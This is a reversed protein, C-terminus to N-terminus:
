EWESLSVGMREIAATLTLTPIAPIALCAIEPGNRTRHRQKDGAKPDAEYNVGPAPM